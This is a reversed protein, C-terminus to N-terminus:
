VVEPTAPGVGESLVRRIAAVLEDATIPKILTEPQSIRSRWESGTVVIVPIHSTREHSQLEEYVSMGSLTPLDLDLVIVAPTHLEVAYLASLGDTVGVVLFGAWRLAETFMERTAADDEVILVTPHRNTMM